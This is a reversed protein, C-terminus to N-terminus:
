FYLVGSLAHGAGGFEVSLYDFLGNFSAVMQYCDLTPEPQGIFIWRQSRRREM